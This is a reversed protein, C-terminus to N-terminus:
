NYLMSKPLYIKDSFFRIKRLFFFTKRPMVKQGKLWISGNKPNTIKQYKATNIAKEAAKKLTKLESFITTKRGNKTKELTKFFFDTV